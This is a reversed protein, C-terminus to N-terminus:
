EISFQIRRCYSPPQSGWAGMLIFAAAGFPVGRLRIQSQYDGFVVNAGGHRLSARLRTEEWNITNKKNRMGSCVSRFTMGKMRLNLVIVALM